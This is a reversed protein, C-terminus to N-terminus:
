MATIRFSTSKWAGPESYHMYTIIIMKQFWYISAPLLRMFHVDVMFIPQSTHINNSLRHLKYYQKNDPATPTLLEIGQLIRNTKTWCRGENRGWTISDTSTLLSLAFSKNPVCVWANVFVSLCMWVSVPVPIAESALMWVPVSESDHSYAFSSCPLCLILYLIWLRKVRLEIIGLPLTKIVEKLTVSVNSFVREDSGHVGWNMLPLRQWAVFRPEPTNWVSCSVACNGLRLAIPM